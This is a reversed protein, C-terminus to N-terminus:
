RSTDSVLGTLDPTVDLFLSSIIGNTLEDTNEHLAIDSRLYLIIEGERYLYVHNSSITESGDRRSFGGVYDWEYNGLNVVEQTELKCLSWLCYDKHHADLSLFPSQNHENNKYFWISVGKSSENAFRFLNPDYIFELSFNKNTFRTKENESNDVSVTFELGGDLMMEDEKLINPKRLAWESSDDSIVVVKEVEVVKVPAFTYGIWGGFFPLVVFLAMALYKSLPTVRFFSNKQEEEVQM